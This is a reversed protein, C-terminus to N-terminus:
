EWELMLVYICEVSILVFFCDYSYMEEIVDWMIIVVVMIWEECMLDVDSFRSCVINCNFDGWCNLLIEFVGVMLMMLCVFCM